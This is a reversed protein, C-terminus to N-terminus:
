NNIKQVEWQGGEIIILLQNHYQKLTPRHGVSIYTTGQQSITQYLTQENEIDLASTAEDLIAYRPQSVLVRAFAIRQQEGLSLINEWNEQADLGAKFRSILHPFQVKELIRQLQRDDVKQTLNPYLIQERLTGVIMYPRQPLFLIEEVQPRAIMGNGSTWLQAIARLLSSKGAGSAGVVLLNSSPPVSISLDQILTRVFDPTKLTLNQVTIQSSNEYEIHAIDLDPDEQIQYIRAPDDFFEYLEGLRNISAAYDSIRQIRNVIFSLAFLLTAFAFDAQAFEGFEVEGKFYLPAIVFYPFLLIIYEYSKQFLNIVSEWIILLDFNKIVEILRKVIQNKEAREGQYFAISEANEQVRILSHRFDAELRLQNYNVGTLRNGIAIALFTGSIVYVLLGLTLTKSISYLIAAFSVLTIISELLQILLSLTVSTFSDVDQTIRQDPNDLKLNASHQNVQYYSRQNFYFDILNKSLWERWSLGIKKQLFNYVVFTPISILFIIGLIILSQWFGQENRQNLATTILNLAYSNLIKIGTSALLLFLIFGLLLWQRWRGKLKSRISIFILTSVFLTGLALYPAPSNLLRNVNEILGSTAQSVFNPLITKGLLTLGVALFFTLAIVVLSLVLILGLFVRTQRPAVPFFYPQATRIFRLWLKKDFQYPQAM